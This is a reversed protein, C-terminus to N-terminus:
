KNEKIHLSTINEPGAMRLYHSLNESFDTTTTDLNELVLTIEAIIM